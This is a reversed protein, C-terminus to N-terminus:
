LCQSIKGFIPEIGIKGEKDIFVRVNIRKFLVKLEKGLKEISSYTRKVTEDILMSALAEKTEAMQLNMRFAIAKGSKNIRRFTEELISSKGMKRPSYLIIHQGGLLGITLEKIEKERDVFHKGTVIVGYVFPNKM